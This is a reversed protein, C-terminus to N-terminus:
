SLLWSSYGFFGTRKSGWYKSLDTALLLCVGLGHSRIWTGLEWAVALTMECRNHTLCPSTLCKQEHTCVSM